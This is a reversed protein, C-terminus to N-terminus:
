SALLTKTENNVSNLIYECWRRKASYAEDRGSIIEKLFMFFKLKYSDIFHVPVQSRNEKLLNKFSFELM